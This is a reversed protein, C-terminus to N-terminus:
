WTGNSPRYVVLDAKGDGDLDANLPQDGPQGWQYSTWGDYGFGKSSYRVFWTANSPRYVVLDTKGDGDFDAPMPIDGPQGWQYSTWTAYSFNNSSFRIYWNCEGPRFVALDPRGDGDFDGNVPIDGRLGWQYTVAKTWKSAATLEYWTGNAPRFVTIDAVTNSMKANVLLSVSARQVSYTTTDSPTFVTSLTMTGTKAITGAAPTYAFTGPVNATADLQTADIVTGDAVPAPTQWTIVPATQQVAISVSASASTFQTTNSPTFVVSLTNTGVPLMTGAAPTYAFTGTTSATADLQTADLATGYPIAAPAAWSVTPVTKTGGSTVFPLDASTASVGLVNTSVARVHYLTGAALGTLAQSHTTAMTSNVSSQNTYSTTTGYDVRGSAAQSTTWTVTAGTSTVSSVSLATIAPPANQVTVTVPASTVAGLALDNGVATVIYTGDLGGTTDWGIGCPNQTVAAGLSAGNIQFQVSTLDLSSAASGLVNVRGAVLSGSQSNVSPSVSVFLSGVSGPAGAELTRVCLTVALSSILFGTGLSAFSSTTRRLASLERPM